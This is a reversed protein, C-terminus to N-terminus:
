DGVVVTGEFGGVPREESIGEGLGECSGESTAVRFGECNGDSSVEIDGVMDDEAVTM